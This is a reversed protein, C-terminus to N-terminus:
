RKAEFLHLLTSMWAQRQPLSTISEFPFGMVCTRYDKGNYLVAAVDGNGYRVVPLSISSSQLVEPRNVAYVKENMKRVINGKFQQGYVVTLSDGDTLSRDYAYKLVNKCFNRDAANQNMDSGLYSGSVIINGGALCYSHLVRQMRDTFTKYPRLASSDEKQLGMIVDICRFEELSGINEPSVLEENEGIMEEFAERSCSVFSWKTATQIALGHIYAYDFTNGAVVKGELESGSFGLSGSGEKGYLHRSFCTQRGCYSINRQYAVGPDRDLDFGLSDSTEVVYPGSLRYFGNVVLAKLKDKKLRMASLVESPFSEGGRNVATVYFSYIRGPEVNLTYSNRAVKTGNDFSASDVRQYVVYSRPAATPEAPDNEGKWSLVLTNKKKGYQIAFHSVPLPQVEYDLHHQTTIFRLIGKYIARSLTFKFNPDYALKMDAFNQHSLMEIITSPVAPLRTESYNRNWMARRQWDVGFCSDVDKKIQSLVLDCLDRSAFRDTGANLKGDNFNTTYVGLTGVYSDNGTSGADTHLAMTMEVPVRLGEKGPNYVSGGSLYNAMLSRVNIDDAYDNGGCRGNYIKSPMGAWQASYRAGEMYRPVGSVTDGRMVNGMGGGFRVADATVVGGSESENTLTVKDYNNVGKDFDFTGLYVWTSGGMQQNVRFETAEGKHYVTYHADNVSNSLSKYSIYVAYEGTEPIDPIWEASAKNARKDSEITRATGQEFPNVDYALVKQWAFGTGEASKWQTQGSNTESYRSATQPADNDVVVENRQIDRERPTIVTAGAHELMPVLYPLVFSQSFLDETTCFLRPRQWGWERRNPLYYLGHSQWLTIYRGQLGRSIDYPSSLCNVWPVSKDDLNEELRDKDMKSHKRYYNPILQEIQRGECSISIQFFRVPGPLISKVQSYISDVIEQRFPQYAFEDSAKIDIHRQEYDTKVSTLRPAVFTKKYNQFYNQLRGRIVSDQAQLVSDQVQSFVSVSSLVFLSLIIIIKKM